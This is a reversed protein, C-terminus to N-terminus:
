GGEVQGGLEPGRPPEGDDVHVVAAAGAIATRVALSKSALPADDVHVVTDIGSSVQGRFTEDVARPEDDPAAAGAPVRRQTGQGEAVVERGAGAVVAHGVGLGQCGVGVLEFRAVEVTEDTGIGLGLVHVPLARGDVVGVPQRRGEYQELPQLVLDHWRGM